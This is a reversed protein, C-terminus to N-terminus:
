TGFTGRRSLSKMLGKIEARRDRPSHAYTAEECLRSEIESESLGAGQLACALRFFAIHGEGSPTSRWESISKEIQEERRRLPDQARQAVLAESLVRLKERVQTPSPTSALAFNTKTDPEEIEPAPRIDLSRHKIWTPVDLVEREPANYDNFFSHQRDAAQCPLYFLSAANFKSEDFGHQLPSKPQRGAKPKGRYGAKQLVQEIEKIILRHVDISMAHSTPIFVRWRPKAPTHSYTNWIILRLYPFLDALKEPTLDGGDNDLWIGRVHTINALGRKTEAGPMDHDFHAPSFAGAEEKAVRRTHLDRLFEIFAEDDCLDLHGLPMKDFVSGFATGSSFPTVFHDNNYTNEYRTKALESMSCTLAARLDPYRGAVVSSGNILDLQVLYEADKNRRYSRSKEADNTHKRRRGPKGKRPQVKLGPLAQVHAGPFLKVLWEATDQDMVVVRKPTADEPSRISCRMIAQYVATRYIATRVEDSTVAHPELFKYHAPVLNLASLIVVNHYVQYNNLGHPSNPLRKAGSQPFPDKLDNNGMWLFPEDGFLDITAAVVDDIFKTRHGEQEIWKDRLSKSWSEDSAYFFTVLSGNQHQAYRLSANLPAPVPVMRVNKNSWLKYLLSDKFLAGAIIVDEFGSLASPRMVSHTMLRGDTEGSEFSRFHTQSTSVEWDDSVIRRALDQFGSFVADDNENEAIKRLSM